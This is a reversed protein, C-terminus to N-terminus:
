NLLPYKKTLLFQQFQYLDTQYAKVTKLSLNKEFRCHSIFGKIATTITHM